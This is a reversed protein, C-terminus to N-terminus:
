RDMEKVSFGFPIEIHEYGILRYFEAQEEENEFAVQEPTDAYRESLTESVAPFSGASVLIDADDDIDKLARYNKKDVRFVPDIFSYMELCRSFKEPASFIQYCRFRLGADWEDFINLRRYFNDRESASLVDILRQEDIIDDNYFIFNYLESAPLGSSLVATGKYINGTGSISIHFSFVNTEIIDYYKAPDWSSINDGNFYIGSYFLGEDKYCFNPLGKVSLTFGTASEVYKRIAILDDFSFGWGSHYYYPPSKQFDIGDQLAQDRVATGPLIMLPYFEIGAGFGLAALRDITNVFDDPTDAPLGPIVGIKLDIGAAKMAEMGKLEKDTDSNRRVRKLTERNLTQIGVEMSRFGANYLLEAKRRDIGSARMESHLRIGSNVEALRELRITFDRSASFAPSLIYIESLNKRERIIDILIDFPLDRVTSCNKSYYCYTCRYPCGRTLEVYISGDMMPDLMKGSFPEFIEAAPILADAPQSYLTNGNIAAAFREIDKGSLYRGFFWEGEGSVFCDVQERKESLSFSGPGIEPGGFIIKINHDVEKIKYAINLNREINWLYSTFCLIDTEAKLIYRCILSDSGFNSLIFPLNQTKVRNGFKKRIYGSISAPAYEINGQIYGCAHDILPLQVFLIKM